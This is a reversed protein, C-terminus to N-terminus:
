AYEQVTGEVVTLEADILTTNAVDIDFPSDMRKSLKVAADPSLAEYHLSRQQRIEPLTNYADGNPATPV